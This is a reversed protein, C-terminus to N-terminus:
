RGPVQADLRGVGVPSEVPGPVPATRLAESLDVGDPEGLTQMREGLGLLGLVTPTLDVTRAAHLRGGAPIDPGGFLLPVLIEARTLGGHGGAEGPRFAWGPLAFLMVDGSRPSDFVELLQPVADPRASTASAELWTHSDHSGRAMLEATDPCATYALPDRGQIVTYAYRKGEPGVSRTVQGVGRSDRVRVVDPGMPWAVLDVGPLGALLATFDASARRAPGTGFTRAFAEIQEPGPRQWWHEGTRLHLSARRQGGVVAVVRAPAFHKVRDAYGKDAGYDGTRVKVGLKCELWRELDFMQGVPTPMHGHDSILIRHTTEYLGAQELAALFQGMRRDVSILVERYLESDSGKAHGVTDPTPFYTLILRPWRGTENALEALLELRVVALQNIIDHLEFHWAVGMSMWNDIPRTAGRNFPNSIVATFEGHLMEYLTPPVLDDNVAQYTAIYGYDQFILSYRDFWRNGTIGHHGPWLGTVFSASNAYTITPYSAAAHTVWTGGRVFHREITPLQGADLMEQLVTLDLGDVFFVVAAPDPRAVQPALVVEPPEDGLCGGLLGALLM